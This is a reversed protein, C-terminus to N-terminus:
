FIVMFYHGRCIVIALKTRPTQYYKLMFDRNLKLMSDELQDDCRHPLDPMLETFKM